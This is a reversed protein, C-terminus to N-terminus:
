VPSEFVRGAHLRVRAFPARHVKFRGPSQRVVSFGYVPLLRVLLRGLLEVAGYARPLEDLDTREVQVLGARVDVHDAVHALVQAM